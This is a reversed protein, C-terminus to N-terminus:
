VKKEIYNKEKRKVKRKKYQLPGAVRVCEKKKQKREKRETGNRPTKRGPLKRATRPSKVFQFPIRVFRRFKWAREEGPLININGTKMESLWRSFEFCACHKEWNKCQKQKSTQKLTGGFHLVAYSHYKLPTRITCSLTSFFSNYKKKM